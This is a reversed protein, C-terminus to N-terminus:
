VQFSDPIETLAGVGVATARERCQGCLPYYRLSDCRKRILREAAQRLRAFQGADLHCEFVSKQVGFGYGQLLRHLRTRRRDDEVDYAVVIFM